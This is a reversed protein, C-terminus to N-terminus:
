FWILTDVLTLFIYLKTESPMYFDKLELLLLDDLIHGIRDRFSSKLMYSTVLFVSYVDSENFGKCVNALGGFSFVFCRGKCLFVKM